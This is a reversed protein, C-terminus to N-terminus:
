RYAKHEEVWLSFMLLIWLERGHEASGDMHRAVWTSVEDPQFYGQRGVVQPNLYDDVLPRFPGTLWRPLPVNFGKKGMALTAAPLSGRMAARLLRKPQLRPMKVSGPLGFAYEMLSTSLLPVRAELSHAMSLRDVKTLVDEALYVNADTYQRRTLDDFARGAVDHREHTDFSDVLGAYIDPHLLRAKHEERLVVRWLYHSRAPNELAGAVFRRAKFDFSARHHSVPLFRLMAPAIEATLGRPLLRYYRAIKDAQYSLYGAFLEDGGDGSLAVTVRTRALECLYYTAIMSPDAFPEDFTPVIRDVVDDASPEVLLETHDTALHRAVLAAEAREDYSRDTFGITFTKLDANPHLRRATAVISSSDIGGSLFFGVPVDAMLHQEVSEALLDRVTQEATSASVRGLQAVDALDWYRRVKYKGDRWLLTRAPELKHIGAYITRPGPIYMLSLYSTLAQPDLTTADGAALIARIESGFILRGSRVAYYLPKIGARDRVLVLQGREEDWLAVAFMGDLRTAFGEGYEEYLHPVVECDSGSAFRHGRRQLERRLERHNYIEGNVVAHVTGAENRVPQHGGAVDVVALRRVALGAPGRLYVGEDDPGRHRLTRCMALLRDRDAQQGSMGVMGAIGCM